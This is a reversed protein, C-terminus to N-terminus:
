RSTGDITASGLVEDGDPDLRYLVLTQGAAVGRLATRSRVRLEDGVLEAVAAVPITGAFLRKGPFAQRRADEWRYAQLWKEWAPWDTPAVEHVAVKLASQNTTFFSVKPPGVPDM